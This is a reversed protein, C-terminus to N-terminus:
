LRKAALEGIWALHEAYHDYTNGAVWEMIPRDTGEQRASGPRYHSFPLELDSPKMNALHAVLRAHADTFYRTAHGPTEHRHLKWVAENIADTSADDAVTIQMAGNRERGELLALLLLEWAGIHALHDKVAWGDDGTMTLGNAGLSRFRDNLESWAEDIRRLLENM